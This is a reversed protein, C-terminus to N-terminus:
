GESSDRRGKLRAAASKLETQDKLVDAINELLATLVTRIDAAQQLCEKDSLEHLGISLPRYLLTLPNEGDLIMLKPPIADKLMEVAKSFQTEALAADFLSLDKSGLKAAAERIETILRKWQNDVVRRFYTAAGVGLGQAESRTGKRYIELDAKGLLKEVRKSTPAAFPLYEGLKMVEADLATESERVTLVAYTKVDRGCDRCRYDIFDYEWTRGVAIGSQTGSLCDFWRVGDDISCHLQIRIRPLYYDFQGNGYTRVVRDVLSPIKVGTNPPTSELFEKWAALADKTPMNLRRLM